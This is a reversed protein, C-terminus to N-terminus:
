ENVIVFTSGFFEKGDKDFLINASLTAGVQVDELSKTNPPNSSDIFFSQSTVPIRVGRGGVNLTISENDKATVEGEISVSWSSIAPNNLLPAISAPARFTYKKAVAFTLGAGVLAGLIFIAWVSLIQRNM